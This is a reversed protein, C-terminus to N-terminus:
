SSWRVQAGTGFVRVDGPAGPDPLDEELLAEACPKGASQEVEDRTRPALTRCARAGDDADLASYFREAAARAPDDQAGGCGTLLLPLVAGLAGLRSARGMAVLGPHCRQLDLTLLRGRPSHRKGAGPCPPPRARCVRRGVPLDVSM